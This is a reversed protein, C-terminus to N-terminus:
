PADHHCNSLLAAYSSGQKEWTYETEILSRANKSLEERLSPDAFLQSIAEIYEEPQNARLATRPVNPGDVTLGELGRDSAVIPIGCAMAELTKTKIGYGVRLPIVCITAQHLYPAISPTNSIIQVGPIQALALIDPAPRAGILTLITAPYKQKLKPFIERTFFHAADINHSSDMAGFFVLNYNNPDIKRYPFLHLDVGNPIITIPKDPCFEQIQKGDERTTVVIQDFKKLYNKEYRKLLFQLYIKDRILHNSVGMELHNKVWGYVSSHINIVTGVQQRFEPRVYMENVGHECTIMDFNGQEIQQDIWSQMPPHYRYMVNPPIGKILSTILRSIKSILNDNNPSNAGMPFIVLDQLFERLKDQTEAAILTESQTVLTVQYHRSLYTLLNFTRVETGGRTPPYPFTSSIM